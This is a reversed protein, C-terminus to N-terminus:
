LVFQELITWIPSLVFRCFSQFVEKKKKKRELKLCVEKIMSINQHHSRLLYESRSMVDLYGIM